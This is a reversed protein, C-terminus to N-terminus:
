QVHLEVNARRECNKKSQLYGILAIAGAFPLNGGRFFFHSVDWRYLRKGDNYDEKREITVNPSVHKRKRVKNTGAVRCAPTHISINRVRMPLLCYVEDDQIDLFCVDCWRSTENGSVLGAVMPAEDECMQYSETKLM